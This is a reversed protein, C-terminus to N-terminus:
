TEEEVNGTQLICAFYHFYFIAPVYQILPLIYNINLRHKLEENQHFTKVVKIYYLLFSTSLFFSADM